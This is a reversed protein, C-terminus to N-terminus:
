ALVIYERGEEPMTQDSIKASDVPETKISSKVEELNATASVIVLNPDYIELTENFFTKSLSPLAQSFIVVDSPSFQAKEFPTPKDAGFAYVIQLKDWVILAASQGYIIEVGEAEYEGPEDVILEGLGIQNDALTLKQQTNKLEFGTPTTKAQLM